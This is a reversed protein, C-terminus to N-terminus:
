KVFLMSFLLQIIVSATEIILPQYLVGQAQLYNRTTDHFCSLYFSPVLGWIMIGAQQCILAETQQDADSFFWALISDSLYILPTIAICYFCNVALTKQYMLGIVEPSSINVCAAAFGLNVTVIINYVLIYAMIIGLGVEM